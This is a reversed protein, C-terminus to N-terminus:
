QLLSSTVFRFGVWGAKAQEFRPILSAIGDFRAAGANCSRM